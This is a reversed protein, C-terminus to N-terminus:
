AAIDESENLLFSPVLVQKSPTPLTQGSFLDDQLRTSTDLLTTADSSLYHPRVSTEAELKRVLTDLQLWTHLGAHDLHLTERPQAPAISGRLM